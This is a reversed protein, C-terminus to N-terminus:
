GIFTLERTKTTHIILTEGDFHLFIIAFFASTFSIYLGALRVVCGGAELAVQEAKLLVDTRPSRGIPVVPSDQLRSNIALDSNPLKKTKSVPKKSYCNGLHFNLSM